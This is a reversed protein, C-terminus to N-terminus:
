ETEYVIKDLEEVYLVKGMPNVGLFKANIGNDELFHKPLVGVNESIALKLLDIGTM